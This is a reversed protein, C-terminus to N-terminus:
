WRWYYSWEYDLQAKQDPEVRVTWKITGMSNTSYWWWPWSYWNWWQPLNTVVEGWDQPGLQTIAGDQGAKSVKGLVSRTVEVDVAQKKRNVLTIRGALDVKEFDNGNIHIANPTRVTETDSRSASVEIAVTLEVDCQGGVATYTTLGQGMMQGDMAIVAPATTIPQSATNKMRIMHKVKPGSMLKAMEMQQENNFNRMAEMPPAFQLDLKYIDDYGLEYSAVGIVMRQGKKLTMHDLTFVFLDESATSGKVEPGLDVADAAAPGPGSNGRYESMRAQQSMIANNFFNPMQSATNGGFAAGLQAVSEQMSIPDVTDKFMFSPVGVVLHVRADQFDKLENIVTGQLAVKAKGKGDIDIRYSPIWRVGRQVYAMAIRVSKGAYEPGFKLTMINRFEDRALTTTPEDLFTVEQLAVSSLPIAKIGEAIKLMLVQGRVPLQPVTGPVGTRALEETTQQPVGIITGEYAQKMAPDTIRIRKGVNAEILEATNLTTRRATVIRTGSVVSQLKAKSDMPAVWFTGLVARPLYDLQVEGKEDVNVLGEHLMFAHGDKFVTVEKVPLDEAKVAEAAGAATTFIFAMAVALLVFHNMRGRMNRGKGSHHDDTKLM